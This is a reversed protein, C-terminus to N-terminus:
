EGVADHLATLAQVFKPLATAKDKHYIKATLTYGADVFKAQINISSDSSSVTLKCDFTINGKIYEAVENNLTEEQAERVANQELEQQRREQQEKQYAEWEAEEESKKRLYDERLATREEESLQNYKEVDEETIEKGCENCYICSDDVDEGCSPCFSAGEPLEEGCGSCTNAVYDIEEGCHPCFKVDFDAM